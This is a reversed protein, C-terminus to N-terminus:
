AGNAKGWPLLATGMSYSPPHVGPGTLDNQLFSVDRAREQIPVGSRGVSATLLFYTIFQFSSLPKINKQGHM